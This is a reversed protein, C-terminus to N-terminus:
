GQPKFQVRRNIGNNPDNPKYLEMEGKGTVVMREASVNFETKLYDKIAQARRQSLSYNYQDNGIADTHGEIIIRKNAIEKMNMMQGVSDLLPYSNPLINTSDFEFNILMAFLNEEKQQVTKNNIVISRYRVKFLKDALEHPSPAHTYIEDESYANSHITFATAALLACAIIKILTFRISIESVCTILNKM